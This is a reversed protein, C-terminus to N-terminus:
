SYKSIRNLAKKTDSLNSKIIYSNKKINDSIIVCKYIVFNM